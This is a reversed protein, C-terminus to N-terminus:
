FFTTLNKALLVTQALDVERRRVKWAGEASRILVDKRRGIMYDTEDQGRNRYLLFASSVTVERAADDGSRSDLIRVNSIMHVTRSRPEEAWHLGTALQQIRQGITQKSEDFWNMDAQERTKERAAQDYRINRTMPVFVRFDDTLLAQWEDFRRADILEAEAYLFDEVERQLLLHDLAKANEGM